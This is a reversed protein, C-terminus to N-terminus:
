VLFDQESPFTESGEKLTEVGVRWAHEEPDRRVAFSNFQDTALKIGGGPIDRKFFGDAAELADNRYRLEVSQGRRYTLSNGTLLGRDQSSRSIQFNKKAGSRQYVTPVPDFQFPVGAKGTVHASVCRLWLVTDLLYNPGYIDEDMRTCWLGSALEAGLNLAAGAFRDSPVYAVRVDDRATGEPLNSPLEGNYVVVLEREPYSQTTYNEIARAVFDPRITPTIVSVKPYEVWDHTIELRECITNVRHSYTHQTLTERWARHAVRQRYLDDEKMRLLEVQFDLDNEFAQALGVRIDRDPFRGLHVVPLYSSIAELAQWQRTTETSLTRDFTAYVRAYKLSLQRTKETVCGLINGAYQEPAMKLQRWTMLYRSEIISLHHEQLMEELVTFDDPFRDLEGWGDFLVGLDLADYYESWRFPNYLAPQVCPALYEAEIGEKALLDIEEVDACFVHEFHSAMEHYHGHYARDETFWYASPIGQRRATAVVERLEEADPGFGAQALNWHGTASEWFSEVLLLDPAGHELTARWNSPTLLFVEGEFQLGQYLRDSVVCAIRLNSNPDKMPAWPPVEPSWWPVFGLAADSDRRVALVPEDEPRLSGARVYPLTHM